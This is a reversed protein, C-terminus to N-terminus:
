DCEKPNNKSHKKIKDIVGQLSSQGTSESVENNKNFEKQNQKSQASADKAEQSATTAAKAEEATSKTFMSNAESVSMSKQKAKGKLGISKVTVHPEGKKEYVKDVVVYNSADEFIPNESVLIMGKSLDKVDVNEKLAKIKADFEEKLMESIVKGVVPETLQLIFAEGRATIAEDLTKANRIKDAIEEVLKINEEKVFQEKLEEPVTFPNFLEGTDEVKGQLEVPIDTPATLPVGAEVDSLYEIEIASSNKITKTGDLKELVIDNIQGNLNVDVQIPLLSIKATKIGTMNYLLNRYISQQARYQYLKKEDWSSIDKKSTKIDIIEVEGTEQNFALIDMAGVIGQGDFLNKNFVLDDKTYFFYKGDRAWDQLKTIIGDEGMLKDYAEDTMNDPKAPTIFNGDKGISLAVRVLEDITNGAITSESFAVKNVIRKFTDITFDAKLATEIADQKNQAKFVPLKSVALMISDMQEDAPLTKAFDFAELLGGREYIGKKKNWVKEKVQNYEFPDEEYKQNKLQEAYQTVRIPNSIQTTTTVEELGPQEELSKLEQLRRNIESIKDNFIATEKQSLDEKNKVKNAISNIRDKSVIGKDIFNNYEKESIDELADQQRTTTSLIGPGYFSKADYIVYFPAINTDGIIHNIVKVGKVNPNSEQFDNFLDTAAGPSEKLSTTDDYHSAASGGVYSGGKSTTKGMQPNNFKFGKAVLMEYMEKQSMNADIVVFDADKVEGEIPNGYTKVFFENTETAANLGDGFQSVQKKGRKFSGFNFKEPSVSTHHYVKQVTSADSQQQTTTTAPSTFEYGITQGNEDLVRRVQNQKNRVLEDFLLWNRETNSQPIPKKLKRVQSIYEKLADIDFQINEREETTKASVLNSELNELLRELTKITKGKLTGEMTKFGPDALEDLTKPKAAEVAANYKEIIATAEDSKLWKNSLSLYKALDDKKLNKLDQSELYKDYAETLTEKLDAPLDAWEVYDVDIKEGEVTEVKDAEYSEIKSKVQEVLGDYRKTIEDKSKTYLKWSKTNELLTTEPAKAIQEQIDEITVDLIQNATFLLAGTNKIILDREDKNEPMTADKTADKGLKIIKKENKPDNLNEQVMEDFVEEGAQERVTKINEAVDEPTTLGKLDKKMKKTSELEATLAPVSSEESEQRVEELTKGTELKIEEKLRNEIKDLHQNRRSNLNKIRQELGATNIVSKVNSLYKHMELMGMYKDYTISEQPIVMGNKEDYFEQPLFDHDRWAIFDAQSIYIGQNALANLLGNDEIEQFEKKVIDNFYGQRNLWMDTMWDQNRGVLETFNNPNNLLNILNTLGLKEDSLKYYDLVLSFSEEVDTDFIGENKASSANVLKTYAKKLNEISKEQTKETVKGFEKTIVKDIEEDTIPADKDAEPRGERIVQMAATRYENRKFQKRFDGYADLYNQYIDLQKKKEKALQKSEPTANKTLSEIESKLTAMEFKLGTKSEIDLILDLDRQSLSQSPRENFLTQKISNLRKNVDIWSENYFVKQKIAQNWARHLIVAETYDDRWKPYEDLNIPNPYEKQVKKYQEHVRKAKAIVSPIKAQYKAGEGTPIKPFAEEFERPTMQNFEEFSNIYQEFVGQEMLYTMHSVLAETESDQVHKDDEENQIVATKSQVGANFYRNSLFEDIGISNLRDVLETGLEEKKAMYADYGSRDFIKYSQKQLTTVSNALGGSLFGMFFGSAFVSFGEKTTPNYKEFSKGYYSLPTSGEGFAAKSFLSKRVTSNNYADLYYNKTADSITEQLTEQVGELINVKFYAGTNKLSKTIPDTKWGKLWTRFGPKNLKFQGQELTIKFQGKSPDGIKGIEQIREKLINKRPNLLNDFALKNTFYILGTNLVATEYEAKSAAENMFEKMKDVSPPRGNKEYYDKYLKDVIENKVMGAELRAEAVALNINRIDRWFAGATSMFASGTRAMGSIDDIAGIRAYYNRTLNSFPNLAAVLQNETAFEAFTRNGSMWNWFKRANSIDDLHNLSDNVLKGGDVANDAINEGIKINRVSKGFNSYAKMGSIGTRAASAMSGLWNEGVASALLGATYAFNLTLNNLFSGLNDKSSYSLDSYYKYDKAFGTDGEFFNGRAMQPLSAYGSAVGSILIPFFSNGITHKIDGLFNTSNNLAEENNRLPHFDIEKFTSTGRTSYKQFFTNPASPGSNFEYLRAYQSPDQAALTSGQMYSKVIDKQTMWDLDQTSPPPLQGPYPYPSAPDGTLNDKISQASADGVNIAGNFYTGPNEEGTYLKDINESSSKVNNNDLEEAM